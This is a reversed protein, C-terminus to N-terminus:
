LSLAKQWRDIAAEIPREYYRLRPVRKGTDQIGRLLIRLPVSRDMYGALIHWDACRMCDDECGTIVRFEQWFTRAYEVRQEGTM